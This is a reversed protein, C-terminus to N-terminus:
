YGRFEERMHTFLGPTICIKWGSNRWYPANMEIELNRFKNIRRTTPTNKAFGIIKNLFFSRDILVALNSWNMITADVLYMQSNKHPRSIHKPFRLHADDYYFVTAASMRKAKQPRTTRRIMAALHDPWPADPLPFYRITKQYGTNPTGPKKKHRFRAVQARQSRLYGLAETLQNIAENRPEILPLDNELLLVYPTSLSQALAEFGGLIGLNERAESVAMGFRNAINRGEQQAEPLFVRSEAFLELFNRDAYSQLSNELSRYGKWSLVGLGVDPFVPTINNM